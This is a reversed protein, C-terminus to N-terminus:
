APTSVNVTSKGIEKRVLLIVDAQFHPTTGGITAVARVFLQDNPTSNKGSLSFGIAGTKNSATVQGFTAVTAYTGGVANSTQITVDMTPTTGSVVGVNVIAIADDGYGAGVAVGTGTTTTTLDAPRILSIAQYNESVKHM